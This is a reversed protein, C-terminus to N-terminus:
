SYLCECFGEFGLAIYKGTTSGLTITEPMEEQFYLLLPTHKNKQTHYEKSFIGVRRLQLCNLELKQKLRLSVALLLFVIGLSKEEGM